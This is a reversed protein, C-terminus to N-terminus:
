AYFEHNAITTYYERNKTIWTSEAVKPNLFYLCNGVYNSGNLATKAAEISENSPTNYITGNAVPEFQIGFKDDFIVSWITDPFEDSKVRNLIVEGVAVKGKFPEGGSEAEIIRSLWYVADDYNGYTSNTNSNQTTNSSNSNTSNNPKQTPSSSNNSTSNNPKQPTNNSNNSSSNNPKQTQNNSTSQKKSQIIVTQTDNDWNVTTNFCESIFRIPVFTRSNAIIPAADLQKYENNIYAYNKNIFLILTTNKNKITVSNSTPDWKINNINLAESIFRIPVYTSSNIIFPATDPNLYKGDVKLKIQPASLSLQTLIIISIFFGTLKKLYKM